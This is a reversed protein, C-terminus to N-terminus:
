VVKAAREQDRTCKVNISHPRPIPPIALYCESVSGRTYPLISLYCVPITSSILIYQVNRTQIAHMTMKLSTKYDTHLFFSSSNTVGFPFPTKVDCTGTKIRRCAWLEYIPEGKEYNATKVQGEVSRTAFFDCESSRPGTLPLTSYYWDEEESAVQSNASVKM